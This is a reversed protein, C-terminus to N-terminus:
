EWIVFANWTSVAALTWSTSEFSFNVYILEGATPTDADLTVKAQLLEHDDGAAWTLTQTGEGTLTHTDPTDGATVSGWTPNFKAAGSTANAMAQCVLKCTGTPLSSPPCPFAMWASANSGLSAVVKIGGWPRSNTGGIHEGLYVDGSTDPCVFMPLIPGGAM